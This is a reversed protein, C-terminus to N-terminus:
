VVIITHLNQSNPLAKVNHQFIPISDTVIDSTNSVTYNPATFYGYHFEAHQLM